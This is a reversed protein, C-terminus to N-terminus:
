RADRIRRAKEFLTAAEADRGQGSRVKGLLQHANADKPWRTLMETALRDAREWRESGILATLLVTMLGADEDHTNFAEQLVKLGADDTPHDQAVAIGTRCLQRKLEQNQSVPLLGIWDNWWSADVPVAGIISAELFRLMLHQSRAELDKRVDNPFEDQLSLKHALVAGRSPQGFAAIEDPVKTPDYNRLGKSCGYAKVLHRVASRYNAKPQSARIRALAQYHNGWDPHLAIADEVAAEAAPVEGRLLHLWARDMHLRAHSLLGFREASDLRALALASKEGKPTGEGMTGHGQWAHVTEELSVAHGFHAAQVCKTHVWATHLFLMLVAASIGLFWKGAKTVIGDSCLPIRHLHVEQRRFVKWAMLMNFAFIASTGLSLLLPFLNSYAGYSWSLAGSKEPNRTVVALLDDPFGRLLFLTAVFLVVLAIEHLWPFAWTRPKPNKLRSRALAAPKGAGFYLAKEPCVSVCDLCKMCGSDVVMGYQHIESAVLVNSTCVSSCHGCGKCADTVRIRMPSLRDVVGFLGGYPCAYTCFGKSGLAYIILVGCLLFTITAIWPGPFTEWFESKFFHAVFEPSQSDRAWRVFLPFFFLHIGALLPVWMLLRSKLPRPHIGVKKLVWAALDQIAVLHCAWGCFWRGLLLTSALSLLLLIAGANVTGQAMTFMAESPELPAITKGKLQWHLIHAFAAVHVLVLVWARRKGMKSHRPTGRKVYEEMYSGAPRLSAESSSSCTQRETNNSM